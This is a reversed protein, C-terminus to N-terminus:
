LLERLSQMATIVSPCLAISGDTPHDLEEVLDRVRSKFERDADLHGLIRGLQTYLWELQHENVCVRARGDGFNDNFIEIGTGHESPRVELEDRGFTARVTQLALETKKRAEAYETLLNKM